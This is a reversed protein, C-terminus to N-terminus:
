EKQLGKLERKLQAAQQKIEKQLRKAQELKKQEQARRKQEIQEALIRNYEAKREERERALRSKEAKEAAIRAEKEALIRSREARELALRANKEAIDRRKETKEDMIVDQKEYHHLRKALRIENKLRKICEEAELKRNKMASINETQLTEWPDVLANIQTSIEAQKAPNGMAEARLELLENRRKELDGEASMRPDPPMHLLLELGETGSKRRALLAEQANHEAMLAALRIEADQLNDATVNYDSPVLTNYNYYLKPWLYLRRDDFRHERVMREIQAATAAKERWVFSEYM